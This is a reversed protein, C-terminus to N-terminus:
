MLNYIEMIQHLISPGKKLFGQGWGGAPLPQPPTSRTQTMIASQPRFDIHSQGSVFIKQM